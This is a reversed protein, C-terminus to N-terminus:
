DTKITESSELEKLNESIENEPDDNIKSIDTNDDAIETASTPMSTDESVHQSLEDIIEEENIGETGFLQSEIKEKHSIEFYNMDIKSEAIERLAIVTPKDKSDITSEAGASLDKARKGALACIDFANDLVELCDEITIRAM